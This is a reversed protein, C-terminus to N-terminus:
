YPFAKQVSCWVFTYANGKRRLISPYTLILDSFFLDTKSESDISDCTLIDLSSGYPVCLHWRGKCTDLYIIGLKGGRCSLASFHECRNRQWRLCLNIVMQGLLEEGPYHEDVISYSVNKEPSVYWLCRNMVFLYGVISWLLPERFPWSHLGILKLQTSFYSTGFTVLDCLLGDERSTM